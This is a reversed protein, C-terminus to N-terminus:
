GAGIEDGRFLPYLAQPGSQPLQAKCPGVVPTCLRPRLQARLMALAGRAVQLGPKPGPTHKLQPQCPMHCGGTIAAPSGVLPLRASGPNPDAIFTWHRQM